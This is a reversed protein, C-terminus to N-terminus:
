YVLSQLVFDIHGTQWAKWKTYYNGFTLVYSHTGNCKVFPFLSEPQLPTFVFSMINSFSPYLASAAKLRVTSKLFLFFLM